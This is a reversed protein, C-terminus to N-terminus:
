FYVGLAIGLVNVHNPQSRSDNQRLGYIDLVLQKKPHILSILPLGRKLSIQVGVALRNRNWTNFRSDYFVEASGYPTLSRNLVKFERELTARNRYRASFEGNVWRLDQRNRDTLLIQLPLPQRLTQEFIIRHEKFPEDGSLSFGHRYGTRLSVKSNVHYDIHAGVQGETNNRTEEAKTTTALFFLRFKENLPVYIDVEPWIQKVPDSDQQAHVGSSFTVVLAALCVLRWVRLKM